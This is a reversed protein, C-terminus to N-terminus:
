PTFVTAPEDAIGLPEETLVSAMTQLRTWQAAVRQMADDTLALDLQTAACRVMDIHSPADASPPPTDHM